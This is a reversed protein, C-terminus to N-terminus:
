RGQFRPGAGSSECIRYWGFRFFGNGCARHNGGQKGNDDGPAAIEQAAEAPEKVARGNIISISGHSIIGDYRGHQGAKRVQQNSNNDHQHQGCGHGGKGGQHEGGAGGQGQIKDFATKHLVHLIFGLQHQHLAQNHGKDDYANDQGQIRRVENGLEHTDGPARQGSGKQSGEEVAQVPFSGRGRSHRALKAVPM